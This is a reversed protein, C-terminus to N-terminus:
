STIPIIQCYSTEPLNHSISPMVLVHSYSATRGPGITSEETTLRGSYLTKAPEDGVLQKLKEKLYEEGLQPGRM